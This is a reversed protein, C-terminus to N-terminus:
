VALCMVCFAAELGRMARDQGMPWTLDALLEYCTPCVPCHKFLVMKLLGPAFQMNPQASDAFLAEKEATLLM